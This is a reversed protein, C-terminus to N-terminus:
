QECRARFVGIPRHHCESRESKKYRVFEFGDFVSGMIRRDIYGPIPLTRHIDDACVEGNKEALTLAQERALKLWTEKTQGFFDLQKTM